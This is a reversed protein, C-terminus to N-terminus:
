SNLVIRTYTYALINACKNSLSCIRVLMLNLCVRIEGFLCILAIFAFSFMTSRFKGINDENDGSTSIETKNAM